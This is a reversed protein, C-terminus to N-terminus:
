STIERIEEGTELMGRALGAELRALATRTLKQQKNLQRFEREVTQQLTELDADQVAQGTSVLM